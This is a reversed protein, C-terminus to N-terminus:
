STGGKEYDTEYFNLVFKAMLGGLHLFPPLGVMEGLTRTKNKNEIWLFFFLTNKQEFFLCHKFLDSVNGKKCLFGQLFIYNEKDNIGKNSFVGTIEPLFSNVSQM